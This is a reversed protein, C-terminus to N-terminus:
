PAPTWIAVTDGPVVGPDPVDTIASENGDEGQCIWLESEIGGGIRNRMFMVHPHGPCDFEREPDDCDFGQDVPLLTITGYGWLVRGSDCDPNDDPLGDGYGCWEARAGCTPCNVYLPVRPRGGICNPCPELIVDGDVTFSDLEESFYLDDPNAMVEGLTWCTTCPETAAVWDPDVAWEPTWGCKLCITHPEVTVYGCVDGHRRHRHILHKRNPTWKANSIVMPAKVAVLGGAYGAIQIENTHTM